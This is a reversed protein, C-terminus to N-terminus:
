RVGLLLELWGLPAVVGYAAVVWPLVAVLPDRYAGVRHVLLARGGVYFLKAALWLGPHTELLSRVVASDEEATGFADVGVLTLAPDWVLHALVMAVLGAGGVTAALPRDGPGLDDTM